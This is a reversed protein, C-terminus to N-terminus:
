FAQYLQEQKKNNKEKRDESNLKIKKLNQKEEKAKEKKKIFSIIEQKIDVIM